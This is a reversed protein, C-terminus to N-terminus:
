SGICPWSTRGIQSTFGRRFAPLTPPGGLYQAVEPPAEGEMCASHGAEPGGDTKEGIVYPSIRPPQM